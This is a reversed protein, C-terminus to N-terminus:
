SPIPLIKSVNEALLTSASQNKNKFRSVKQLLLSYVQKINVFYIIKHKM